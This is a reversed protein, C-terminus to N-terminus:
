GKFTHLSSRSSNERPSREEPPVMTNFFPDYPVLNKANVNPRDDFNIEVETIKSDVLKLRTGIYVTKGSASEAAVHEIVNGKIADAYVGESLIHKVTSWKSDALVVAKTNERIQANAGLPVKETTRALMNANFQKMQELLCARDCTAASALSTLALFAFAMAQSGFIVKLTKVRM